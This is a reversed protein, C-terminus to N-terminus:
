SDGNIISTLLPIPSSAYRDTRTAVPLFKTKVRRTDIQDEPRQRFWKRFKDHKASKHAFRVTMNKLQDTVSLIGARSLAQSFSRYTDGYIIHLGCRLVRNLHTKEAITLQGYWAPAGLFLVSLVQKNLVDLLQHTPAGLNKLRRVIWMRKYAKKIIYSTNSCTKLDSRFMYGVLKLEDVVELNVGPKLQLEPIIDYKRWSSCFMAKTKLTNISMKKDSINRALSDLETQLTNSAPPLQHGTRNHYPVPLPVQRDEPVLLQQSVSACVTLDDIWKVKSKVIPQRKNLPATIAEGISTQNAAPGAENFMILFCELGLITGAGTGGPM